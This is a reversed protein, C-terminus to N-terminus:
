IIDMKTRNNTEDKNGRNLIYLVIKHMKNDLLVKNQPNTKSKNFITSM